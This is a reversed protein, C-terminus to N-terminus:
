GDTLFPKHQHIVVKSDAQSTQYIARVRCAKPLPGRYLVVKGPFLKALKGASLQKGPPAQVSDSELMQGVSRRTWFVDAHAFHDQAAMLQAAGASDASAGSPAPVSDSGAARGQRRRPETDQATDPIIVVDEARANEILTGDAKRLKCKNGM